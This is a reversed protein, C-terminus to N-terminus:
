GTKRKHFIRSSISHPFKGHVGCRCDFVWNSDESSESRQSRRSGRKQIRTSARRGNVSSDCSPASSGGEQAQLRQEREKNQRERAVLRAEREQLTHLCSDQGFIYKLKRRSTPNSVQYKNREGARAKRLREEQIRGEVVSEEEEKRRAMKEGIRTSRKRNAVAEIKQQEKELDLM